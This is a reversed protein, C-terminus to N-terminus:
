RFNFSNCCYDVFKQSLGRLYSMWECQFYQRYRKGMRELSLGYQTMKVTSKLIWECQLYLRLRKGIRELSLSYLTMRLVSLVGM